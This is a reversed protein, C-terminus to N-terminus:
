AGARRYEVGDIIVVDDEQAGEPAEQPAEPAPAEEQAEQAKRADYRDRMFTATRRLVTPVEATGDEEAPASADPIQEETIDFDGPEPDNVPCDACLAYAGGAWAPNTLPAGTTWDIGEIGATELVTEGAHRILAKM